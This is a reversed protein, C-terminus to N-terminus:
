DPEDATNPIIEGSETWSRNSIIKGRGQMVESKLQGNPHWVQEPWPTDRDQLDDGLGPRRQPLIRKRLRKPNRRRVRHHGNGAWEQRTRDRARYITRRSLFARLDEVFTIDEYDVEPFRDETM